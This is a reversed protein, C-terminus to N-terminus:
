ESTTGDENVLLAGSALQESWGQQRDYVYVEVFVHVPSEDVVTTEHAYKRPSRPGLVECALKHARHRVLESYGLSRAWMLREALVLEAEARIDDNVWNAATSERRRRM